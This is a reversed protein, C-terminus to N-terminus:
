SFTVMGINEVVRVVPPVGEMNPLPPPPPTIITLGGTECVDVTVLVAVAVPPLEEEKPVPDVAEVAPAGREAVVRVGRSQSKINAATKAIKNAMIFPFATHFRYFRDNDDDCDDDYDNNDHVLKRESARM